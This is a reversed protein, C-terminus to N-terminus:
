NMYPIEETEINAESFERPAVESPPLITDPYKFIFKTVKIKHGDKDTNGSDEVVKIVLDETSYGGTMNKIPAEFQEQAKELEDYEAQLIAMKERIKNKKTVMSNVNQATRRIAAIEFKSLEKM